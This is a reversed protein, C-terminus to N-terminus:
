DFILPFRLFAKLLRLNFCALWDTAIPFEPLSEVLAFVDDWCNRERFGEELFSWKLM